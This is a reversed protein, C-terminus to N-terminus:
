PQPETQLQNQPKCSQTSRVYFSMLTALDRKILSVRGAVDGLMAIRDTLDNISVKVGANESTTLADIKEPRKPTHVPDLRGSRVWEAKLQELRTGRSPDETPPVSDLYRLVSPPYFTDLVPARDFLPALMNPMGGVSADPGHQRRTAMLSLITSAAGAGIGIADGTNQTKSGLTTFQTASVVASLGSGTLLAATNLRAVSRDRRSQLSARLDTLKGRENSLEALVSDVDLSSIQISELLEQRATLEEITAPSSCPRQSQVLLIKQQVPTLGLLDALQASNQDLAARPPAESPATHAQSHAASPALVPCLLLCLVLTRRLLSYCLLTRRLLAHTGPKM